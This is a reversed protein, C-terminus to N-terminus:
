GFDSKKRNTNWNWYPNTGIVPEYGGPPATMPKGGNNVVFSVYDKDAIYQAVTAPRLWTVMNKIVAVGVGEKKAMNIALDAAKKAVFTGINENADIVVLSNTKRLIKYKRTKPGVKKVLSPFAMLGHSKKGRLEGELYEDAVIKAEEKSIGRLTLAKELTNRIEKIRIKM